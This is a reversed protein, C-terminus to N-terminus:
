DKGMFGRDILNWHKPRSPTNLPTTVYYRFLRVLPQKSNAIQPFNSKEQELAGVLEAESYKEEPLMYLDLIQAIDHQQQPVSGEKSMDGLRYFRKVTDLKVSSQKQQTSQNSSLQEVRASLALFAKLLEEKSIDELAVQTGASESM